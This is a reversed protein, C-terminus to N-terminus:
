VSELITEDLNQIKMWFLENIINLSAGRVMAYGMLCSAVSTLTFISTEIIYIEIKQHQTM